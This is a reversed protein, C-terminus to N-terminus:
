AGVDLRGRASPMKSVLKVNGCVREPAHALFLAGL